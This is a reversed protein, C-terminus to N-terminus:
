LVQKSAVNSYASENGDIDLATVVFYYTAPTLQDVIQTTGASSPVVKSSTYNGQTTGWYIKYNKLDTLTTGDTNQNPAIWSLTAAGSATAVVNISFAALNASVTGDSVSIQINSYSAVDGAAPTGTLAGTSTSFTAWSPKNTITFTLTNGDADAATPTFAYATGQMVSSNPTGSITPAQNGSAPPNNNPPNVNAPAAAEDGGGGGCAAIVASTALVAFQIGLRRRFTRTRPSQTLNM